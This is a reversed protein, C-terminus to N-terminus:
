FTTGVSLMVQTANAEGKPPEGGSWKIQGISLSIRGIRGNAWSFTRTIAAGLERYTGHLYRSDIHEFGGGVTLTAFGLDRHLWSEVRWGATTVDLDNRREVTDTVLQFGAPLEFLNRHHVDSDGLGEGNPRLTPDLQLVPAPLAADEAHDSLHISDVEDALVPGARAALVGIALATRV